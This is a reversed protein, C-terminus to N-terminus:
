IFDFLTGVLLIAVLIALSRIPECESNNDVGGSGSSTCKGESDMFYGTNCFLCKSLDDPNCFLCGADDSCKVCKRSTESEFKYGAACVSCVPADIISAIECNVDSYAITKSTSICSRKDISLVRNALCYSCTLDNEYIACYLINKPVASCKGSFTGYFSIACTKCTFKQEADPIENVVACNPIVIKICSTVNSASVLGYGTPCTACVNEDVFTKCNNALGKLCKTPSKLYYGSLCDKCTVDPNYFECFEIANADLIDKCIGNGLYKNTKCTVCAKKDSYISCGPIGEPFVKCLGDGNIYYGDECASCSDAKINYGLCKNISPRPRKTCALNSDLYYKDTCKACTLDAQVINPNNKYDKCNAIEPISICYDLPLPGIETQNKNFFYGYNCMQCSLLSIDQSSEDFNLCNLDPKAFCKYNDNKAKIRLYNAECTRCSLQSFYVVCNQIKGLECTNENILYYRDKCVACDTATNNYISCNKIKTLFPVCSKQSQTLVYDPNCEKCLYTGNTNIQYIKCDLIIFKSNTPKEQNELRLSKVCVDTHKGFRIGIYGPSCELCGTGVPGGSALMPEKIKLYYGPVACQYASFFDCIGDPNTVYGENCVYCREAQFDYILCNRDKDKTIKCEQASTLNNIANVDYVLSFGSNCKECRNFTLTNNACNEIKKCATIYSSGNTASVLTPLYGTQCSVCRPNVNVPDSSIPLDVLLEQIGCNVVSSVILGNKQCTTSNAFGATALYPADTSTSDTPIAFTILNAAIVSITKTVGGVTTTYTVNKTLRGYTPILDSNVCKHCSTYFDVPYKVTTNSQNPLSGAGKIVSKMDCEVMLDCRKIFFGNYNSDRVIQGSYGHKCAVCGYANPSILRAFRCNQLNATILTQDQLYDVVKTNTQSTESVLSVNSSLCGANPTVFNSPSYVINEDVPKYYFILGVNILTDNIVGVTGKPCCACYQTTRAFQNGTILCPLPSNESFGTINTQIDDCRLYSEIYIDNLDNRNLTYLQLMKNNPCADVCEGSSNIVKGEYCIICKNSAFDFLKCSTTKNGSPILYFDIPVCHFIYRFELTMLYHFQECYDCTVNTQNVSVNLCKVSVQPNSAVCKNNNEGLPYPIYYIGRTIDASCKKCSNRDVEYEICNKITGLECKGDNLYAYEPKCLSCTSSGSYKACNAITSTIPSCMGDIPMSVSQLSCSTCKNQLLQSTTVCGLDGVLKHPACVDNSTYYLNECSSCQNANFYDLCNNLGGKRCINNDLYYKESCKTCTLSTGTKLFATCFFITSLCANGSSNTTFGISCNKCKDDLPEYEECNEISASVVRIECTQGRTFYGDECLTCTKNVTPSYNLCKEIKESEKCVTPSELYYGNNCMTCTNANLYQKCYFISDEPFIECKNDSTKFYGEKCTTCQNYKSFTDCGEVETAQCVGYSVIGSRYVVDTYLKHYNDTDSESAINFYLNYNMIYGSKCKNCDFITYNSCNEPLNEKTCTKNDFSLVAGPDCEDCTTNNTSYVLCNLMTMSTQVCKNNTLYFLPRCAICTQNSFYYSCNTIMGNENVKVCKNSDLYYNEKCRVCTGNSLIKACNDFSAEICENDKLYYMASVDCFVCTKDSSCKLCGAACTAELSGVLALILIVNIM